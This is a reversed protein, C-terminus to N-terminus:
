MLAVHGTRSINFISLYKGSLGGIFLERIQHGGDMARTGQEIYHVLLLYM